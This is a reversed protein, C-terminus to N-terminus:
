CRTAREKELKTSEAEPSLTGPVELDRGRAAPSVKLVTPDEVHLHAEYGELGSKAM